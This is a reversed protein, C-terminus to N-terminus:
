VYIILSAMVFPVEPEAAWSWPILAIAHLKKVLVNLYSKLRSGPTRSDQVVELPLEAVTREWLAEHDRIYPHSERELWDHWAYLRGGPKLAVSMRSVSEVLTEETLVCFVNFASISDFINPEDPVEPVFRWNYGRNCSRWQAFDWVATGPLDCYWVENGQQSLRAADGGIGGGFSLCTGGSEDSLVALKEEFNDTLNYRVLDAVFDAERHWEEVSVHNSRSAINWDEALKQTGSVAMQAATEVPVGLYEAWDVLADKKPRDLLRQAEIVSRDRTRLYQVTVLPHKLAFSISSSLPM